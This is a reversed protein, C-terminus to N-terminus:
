PIEFIGCNRCITEAKHSRGKNYLARANQYLRNNWVDAFDADLMNGFDDAENYVACCPSVAGVPNVTVSRYLYFCGGAVPKQLFADQRYGPEKPIYPFWEEALAKKNEAHFSIGVPIFRLLDVGIEKSIRLADDIQACNHKMVIFQWEVFPTKRNLEKKKAIIKRLNEFVLEVDGGVRYRAYIDQTVGDLSVIFYELGSKVVAEADFDAINLNTSLSTQVNRRRSYRIMEFIDPNLFPEGWNHLIVEFLYPCLRDFIKRFDTFKVLQKKRKVSGTGTPCLPCRLNCINGTDFILLYPYGVVKTRHIKRQLEIALLNVLKRPTSHSLISMLHRRLRTYQPTKRLVREVKENITNM